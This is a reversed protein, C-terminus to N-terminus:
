TQKMSIGFRGFYVLFVFLSVYKQLACALKSFWQIGCDLFLSADLKM